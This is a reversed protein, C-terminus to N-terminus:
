PAQSAARAPAKAADIRDLVETAGSLADVCEADDGEHRAIDARQIQEQLAARGPSPPLAEARAMAAAADDRCAAAAPFPLLIALVAIAARRTM